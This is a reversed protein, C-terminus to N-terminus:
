RRIAAGALVGVLLVVLVTRVPHQRVSRAFRTLVGGRDTRVLGAASEVTDAAKHVLGTTTDGGPVREAHEHLFGATAELREAAQDRGSDVAAKASETVTDITTRSQAVIDDAQQENM